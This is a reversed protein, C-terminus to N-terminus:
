RVNERSAPYGTSPTDREIRAALLIRRGRQAPDHQERASRMLYEAMAHRAEAEAKTMEVEGRSTGDQRDWARSRCIHGRM